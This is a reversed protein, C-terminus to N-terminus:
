GLRRRKELITLSSLKITITDTCESVGKKEIMMPFSELKKFIQFILLLSWIYLIQM